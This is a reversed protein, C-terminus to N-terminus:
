ARKHQTKFEMEPFQTGGEMRREREDSTEVSAEIEFNLQRM